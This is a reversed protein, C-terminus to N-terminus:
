FLHMTEEAAESQPKVVLTETGRIAEEILEPLFDFTEEIHFVVNLNPNTAPSKPLFLTCCDDYPLISTEYTDIKEAIRIIETKDMTILPQIIPLNVVRGIANMSALTQSAVQGLSEGTVLAGAGNQEALREAIRYMARRMFTIMFNGKHAEHLRTQIETFPVLHLKIEGAYESLKRTLDIVKQKARESTYPYSHFHVAEIALGKRMAFWGAVPSDIGGSLLLMGKGNTGLPFGGTGPIVESYLLSKTERIEVRINIEPHHVDVKLNPTEDLVHGGVLYNMQHSDHPFKKNARRVSVKFTEPAKAQARFISLALNQIAQVENDTTYAPSYSRIGFVKQLVESVHEYCNKVNEIYLRGFESSYTIEEHESLLRQIQKTVSQEFKKRNRGKLTLEGFRVLMIDPYM